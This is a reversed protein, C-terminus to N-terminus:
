IGAFKLVDGNRQIIESSFLYVCYLFFHVAALVTKLLLNFIRPKMSSKKVLLTWLNGGHVIEKDIVPSDESLRYYWCVVRYMLREIKDFIDNGSEQVHSHTLEYDVQLKEIETYIHNSTVICLVYSNGEVIMGIYANLTASLKDTGTTGNTVEM